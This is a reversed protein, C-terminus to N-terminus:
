GDAGNWHGGAADITLLEVGEGVLDGEGFFIATVRGHMPAHITHEMKLTLARRDRPNVGIARDITKLGAYGPAM